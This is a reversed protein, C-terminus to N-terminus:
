FFVMHIYPSLQWYFLVSNFNEGPLGPSGLDGKGGSLGPPGGPGKM